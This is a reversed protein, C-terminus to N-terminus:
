ASCTDRGFAALAIAMPSRFASGLAARIAALRAFSRLLCLDSFLCLAPLFGLAAFAKGRVFRLSEARKLLVQDCLVILWQPQGGHLPAHLRKLREAQRGAPPKQGTVVVVIVVVDLLAELAELVRQLLQGSL